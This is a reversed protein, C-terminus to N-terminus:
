PYRPKVRESSDYRGVNAVDASASCPQALVSLMTITELAGGLISSPFKILSVLCQIFVKGNGSSECHVDILLSNLSATVVDYM